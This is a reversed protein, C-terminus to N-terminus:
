TTALWPHAEIATRDREGYDYLLEEKAKIDRLAIFILHPRSNYIFLRTKCNPSKRSHNVLRGIRGSPKTADICLKQKNWEFYYMYCGSGDSEYNKERIKAEDLDILDGSYECVFSGKPIDVMSFIGKGKGKIDDVQFHKPDTNTSIYYKKLSEQELALEKATVRRRTRTVSPFFETILRNNKTKSM